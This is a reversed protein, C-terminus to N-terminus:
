FGSGSGGTTASVGSSPTSTTAGATSDTGGLGQGGTTPTTPTTPTTTTPTTSTGGGLGSGGTTSTSPEPYTPTTQTATTSTTITPATYTDTTQTSTTTTTVTTTSRTPKPRPKKVPTTVVHTQCDRNALSQITTAGQQLNSVLKSDVGSLGNLDNQFATLGSRAAACNGNSLAQQVQNLQNSLRNAQSQSLLQGGSSGCGAIAAMAFGAGAALLARHGFGM